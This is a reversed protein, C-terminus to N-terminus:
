RNLRLHRNTITLRVKNTQQQHVQKANDPRKLDMRHVYALDDTRSIQLYINGTICVRSLQSHVSHSNHQSFDCIQLINFMDNVVM